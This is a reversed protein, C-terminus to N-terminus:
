ETLLLMWVLLVFYWSRYSFSHFHSSVFRLLFENIKRIHSFLNLILLECCQVVCLVRCILISIQMHKVFCLESATYKM